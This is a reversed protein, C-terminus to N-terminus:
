EEKMIAQQTSIMNQIMNVIEAAYPQPLLDSIVDCYVQLNKVMRDMSIGDHPLRDKAWRLQDILLSADNMLMCAELNSSTFEFGSKLTIEAQDGLHDFQGPEALLRTVLIENLRPQNKRFATQAENSINPKPVSIMKM